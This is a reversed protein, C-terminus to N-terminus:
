DTQCEFRSGDALFHFLPLPAFTATHAGSKVFPARALPFVDVIVHADLRPPLPTGRPIRLRM